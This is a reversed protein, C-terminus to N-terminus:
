DGMSDILSEPSERSHPNWSRAFMEDQMRDFSCSLVSCTTLLVRDTFFSWFHACLTGSARLKM